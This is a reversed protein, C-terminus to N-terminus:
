SPGLKRLLKRIPGRQKKSWDSQWSTPVLRRIAKGALTPARPASNPQRRIMPMFWDLRLVSGGPREFSTLLGILSAASLVGVLTWAFGPDVGRWAVDSSQPSTLGGIAMALAIALLALAISVLRAKWAVPNKDM